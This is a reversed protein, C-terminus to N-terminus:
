MRANPVLIFSPGRAFRNIRGTRSTLLFSNKRMPAVGSKHQRCRKGLAALEENRHEEVCHSLVVM